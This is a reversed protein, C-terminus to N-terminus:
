FKELAEKIKGISFEGDILVEKSNEKNEEFDISCKNKDEISDVVISSVIRDKLIRYRIYMTDRNTSSVPMRREFIGDECEYWGNELLYNKIGNDLM